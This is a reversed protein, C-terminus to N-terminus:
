GSFREHLIPIFTLGKLRNQEIITKLRKSIIQLRYASGGSGFYENSQVIDFDSNFISKDFTYGGIRPHYYKIRNCFHRSKDTNFLEVSSNNCNTMPTNYYDLGKELITEIHLQNWNDILSNDKHLKPNSFSIGKINETEFLKKTEDRVFIADHEWHLGWFQLKLQKPPTKLRFPAIQYKGMGCNNCYNDLNFTADLYGNDGDPQPYQYEGTRIIFWEANKIDHQEYITGIQHSIDFTAFAREHKDFNFDDQYLHFELAFYHTKEDYSKESIKYDIELDDLLKILKNNKEFTLYRHQIRM